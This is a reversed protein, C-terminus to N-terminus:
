SPQAQTWRSLQSREAACSLWETHWELWGAMSPQATSHQALGHTGEQLTRSTVTPPPFPLSSGPAQLSFTNHSHLPLTCPIIRTCTCRSFHVTFHYIVPRTPTAPSASFACPGCPSHDHFCCFGVAGTHFHQNSAALWPFPCPFVTSHALRWVDCRAAHNCTPSHTPSSPSQPPLRTLLL